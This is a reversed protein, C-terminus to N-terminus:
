QLAALVVRSHGYARVGRRIGGVRVLGCPIRFQQSEVGSVRGRRCYLHGHRPRCAHVGGRQTEPEVRGRHEVAIDVAEGRFVHILDAPFGEFPHGKQGSRAKGQYEQQEESVSLGLRWNDPTITELHIM